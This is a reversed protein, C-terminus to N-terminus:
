NPMGKGFNVAKARMRQHKTYEPGYLEKALEGHPDRGERLLQLYNTDNSLIALVRSEAASYDVEVLVKGPEPIFARRIDLKSSPINQINPGSSSRRGTATIHLSFNTHVRDNADMKKEFGKVYTGYEKIISRYKLILKIVEPPDEISDLVNYDTSKAKRIKPKLKLVDFVLWSVQKPSTPKFNDSATKAGTAAMYREKDWYYKTAEVIQGIVEEMEAKYKITLRAQEERNLKMGNLELEIYASAAPILRKHYLRSLNDDKQIKPYLKEFAQLTYDADMAVRLLQVEEPASGFGDKSKIWANAVDKYSDAGLLRMSVQELDHTGSTENLCYDALMLDHDIRVELADAVREFMKDFKGGHWVFENGLNFIPQMYQIASKAFCIVKNKEYAVGIVLSEGARGQSPIDFPSLETTEIDCGVRSQKSLFNRAQIVDEKTRCVRYQTIGPDLVDEKTGNHLQAAYEFVRLFSKYEGPARLFMAPHVATIVTVGPLKPTEKALGQIEKIKLSHDNLIMKAATAGLAIVLTAGTELIESILHERCAEMSVKSLTKGSKKPVACKLATTYYVDPESNPLGVRTLTTRVVDGGRSELATKRRVEVASPAEGVIVISAKTIPREMRMYKNYPCTNCKM